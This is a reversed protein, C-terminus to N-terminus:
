LAVSFARMKMQIADNLLLLILGDWRDASLLGKFGLVM